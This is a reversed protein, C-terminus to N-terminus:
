LKQGDADQSSLPRLFRDVSPLVSKQFAAACQYTGKYAAGSKLYLRLFFRYRLPLCDILKVLNDTIVAAATISDDVVAKASFHSIGM